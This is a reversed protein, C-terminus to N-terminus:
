AEGEGEESPCAGKFAAGDMRRWRGRGPWGSGCRAVAWARLEAPSRNAIGALKGSAPIEVSGEIPHGNSPCISIFLYVTKLTSVHGM